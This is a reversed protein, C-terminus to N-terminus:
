REWQAFTRNYREMVAEVERYTARFTQVGPCGIELHSNLLRSDSKAFHPLLTRSGRTMEGLM